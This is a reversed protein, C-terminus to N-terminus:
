VRAYKKGAVQRIVGKFEMALLLHSLDKAKVTAQVQITEFSANGGNLVSIVKREASTLVIEPMVQQIVRPAVQKREELLHALDKLIEEPETVLKAIQDRILHNCGISTESDIAGPLAYVERDQEFAFRATIQAGGKERAEIVVTANCLGSIIRNRAPFNYADPKTGSPFETILAGGSELIRNAKTHHQRPYITDLGHALIATTIGGCSLATDHAESDIGFALGSVVNFGEKAFFRAFRRAWARGKESPKRTGVLAISPHLNLDLQGRKYIILPASESAKLNAPYDDDVYSIVQIGHKEAFKLEAEAANVANSETVTRATKSGIGPVKLLRSLPTRFVQEAGGCYAILNRCNKPGLNAIKTLGILYLTQNMSRMEM